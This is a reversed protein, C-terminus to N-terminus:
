FAAVEAAMRAGTRSDDSSQGQWRDITILASVLPNTACASREISVSFLGEKILRGRAKDNEIYIDCHKCSLVSLFPDWRVDCNITDFQGVLHVVNIATILRRVEVNVKALTIVLAPCPLHSRSGDEASLPTVIILM